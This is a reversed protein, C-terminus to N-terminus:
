SPDQKAGCGTCYRYDVYTETEYHGQDEQHSGVKVKEQKSVNVYNGYYVGNYLGNEDANKIGEYIIAKLDEQTFGDEFWYIPGDGHYFINGSEDVGGYTYFQAGYITQTEYDDVTVMKSVWVEKTATHDAWTHQHAPKSSAASGGASGSPRAAASGDAGSEAADTEENAAASSQGSETEPEKEGDASHSGESSPESKDAETKGGAEPSAEPEDPKAADSSTTGTQQAPEKPNSACASTGALFIIFAIAIVLLIAALIIVKRNKSIREKWNEM